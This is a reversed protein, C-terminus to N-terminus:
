TEQNKLPKYNARVIGLMSNCLIIEDALNLDDIYCKEESAKLEKILIKRMTGNLLNSELHPTIWINKKRLFLNTFSGECIENKENTWIIEQNNDTVKNLSIEERPFFKHKWKKDKSNVKFDRSLSFHIINNELFRDYLSIETKIEGESSYILRLKYINKEQNDYKFSGSFTEIEDLKNFFKISNESINDLIDKENIKFNLESISNLLREHHLNSNFITISNNEPNYKIRITELLHTIQM